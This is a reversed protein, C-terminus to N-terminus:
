CHQLMAAVPPLSRVHISCATDLRSVQPASVAAGHILQWHIPTGDGLAGCSMLGQACLTALGASIMHHLATRCWPRGHRVVQLQPVAKNASRLSVLCSTQM